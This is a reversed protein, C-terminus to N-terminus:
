TMNVPVIEAHKFPGLDLPAFIGVRLFMNSANPNSHRRLLLGENDILPLCYLNVYTEAEAPLDLLAMAIIKGPEDAAGLLVGHKIRSSASSLRNNLVPSRAFDRAKKDTKAIRVELIKGFMQLECKPMNLRDADCDEQKTWKKDGGDEIQPTICWKSKDCYIGETRENHYHVVPGIVSAWSWSPARTMEKHERDVPRTLREWKGMYAQHRPMWLLGRVLDDEWVGALYRTKVLGQVLQAIGTVAAFIDGPYSLATSTYVLLMRYWLAYARNKPTNSSLAELDSIMLKRGDPNPTYLNLSGDEWVRIQQCKWSFQEEGYIVLRHSLIEEQHCWARASVPGTERSRPLTLCVHGDDANESMPLIYPTVAPKLDNAIFSKSGDNSRGAVITLAANGYVSSMKKSETEWDEASGQIICLADVWLYRFELARTIDIAERHARRMENYDTPRFMDKPEGKSLQTSGANTPGWCYSLAVYPDRQGEAPVVLRPSNESAEVGVDIVRTPMVPNTTRRCRKHQKECREIWRKAMEIHGEPWHNTCSFREKFTEATKTDAIDM